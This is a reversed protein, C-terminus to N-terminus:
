AAAKATAIAPKARFGVGLQNFSMIVGVLLTLNVRETEDFQAAMAEYADDPAHTEPLRVLAETWGLAARERESYLPTERWADLMVIRDEREGAARAEKAHMALCLACGNIQSARIKVLTALSPELRGEVTHAYDILPQVLDLAAYPYTRATM